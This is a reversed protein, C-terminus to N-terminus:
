SRFLVAGFYTVTDEGNSYRLGCKEVLACVHIGYAELSPLAQEPYRCPAGDMATCRECIRCAGASLHLLDGIPSGELLRQAVEDHLLAAKRIGEKDQRDAIEWVTEYVLARTYGRARTILTQIEGVFPPCMWNRGFYGCVDEKCFDRFGADFPIDRVDIVGADRAGAYLALEMWQQDTM